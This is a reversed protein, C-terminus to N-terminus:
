GDVSAHTWKPGNEAVPTAGTPRRGHLPHVWWLTAAVSGAGQEDMHAGASFLGPVATPADALFPDFAPDPRLSLWAASCAEGSGLGLGLQSPQHDGLSRREVPVLHRQRLGGLVHQAVEFGQLSLGGGELVIARQQPGVQRRPKALDRDVLDCRPLDLLQGGLHPVLALGGLGARVCELQQRLDEGESPAPAPTTLIGALKDAAGLKLLAGVDVEQILVLQLGEEGRDVCLGFRKAVGVERYEEGRRHGAQALALQQGQAPSIDIPARLPDPNPAVVDAAM